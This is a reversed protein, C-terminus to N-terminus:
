LSDDQPTIARNIREDLFYADRAFRLNGKDDFSATGYFVYFPISDKGLEVIKHTNANPLSLAQDIAEPTWEPKNRLLYQLLDLPHQLRICGSSLFREDYNDFFDRHNTDHLYIASANTTQFKVVGLSNTIGPEERFQLAPATNKYSKWAVLKPDVEVGKAFFQQTGDAMRVTGGLGFIKVHEETMHNPDDRQKPMVDALILSPPPNWYPNLDVSVINDVLINTPRLVQGNVTRMSLAVKGNEFLQFEQRAINVLIYRNGLSRPMWRWKELTARVEKIREDVSTNLIAFGRPGIIGDAKLKQDAQFELIADVLVQDCIPSPDVTESFPLINLEMLRARVLPVDPSSVGLRLMKVGPIKPWGGHAKIAFLSALAQELKKYDAHQPEFSEFAALQDVGPRLTNNLAQYDSFVRKKIMVYSDVLKPNARGNQIDGAMRIYSQVMLLDLGAKQYPTMAANAYNGQMQFSWYDKADLGKLAAKNVFLDHAVIAQPTLGGATVFAPQFGRLSYFKKVLEVDVVEEGIDIDKGKAISAQIIAQIEPEAVTIPYATKDYAAGVIPTPVYDFPVTQYQLWDQNTLTGYAQRYDLAYPDPRVIYQPAAAPDTLAAQGYGPQGYVPPPQYAPQAPQGYAPPPPQQQQQQAAQQQQAYAQQQAQQQASYAQAEAAKAEKCKRDCGFWSAHAPSAVSFIMAVTIVAFFNTAHRNLQNVTLEEDCFM